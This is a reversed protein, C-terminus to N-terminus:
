IYTFSSAIKIFILLYNMRLNNPENVNIHHKISLSWSHLACFLYTLSFDTLSTEFLLSLNSTSSCKLLLGAKGLLSICQLIRFFLSISLHSKSLLWILSKLVILTRITCYQVIMGFWVVLNSLSLDSNIDSSIIFYTRWVLTYCKKFLWFFM